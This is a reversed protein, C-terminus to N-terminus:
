KLRTEKRKKPLSRFRIVPRLATTYDRYTALERTSPLVTWLYKVRFNAVIPKRRTSTEILRRSRRTRRKTPRLYFCRTFFYTLFFFERKKNPRDRGNNEDRTCSTTTRPGDTKNRLTKGRTTRRCEVRAPPRRVSAFTFVFVDRKGYVFFLLLACLQRRENKTFANFISEASLASRESATPRRNKKWIKKKKYVRAHTEPLANAPSAFRKVAHASYIRM